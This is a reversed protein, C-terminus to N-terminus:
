TQLTQSCPQERTALIMSTIALRGISMTAFADLLNHLLISATQLKESYVSLIYDKFMVQLNPMLINM